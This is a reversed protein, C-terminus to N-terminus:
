GRLPRLDRPGKELPGPRLDCALVLPCRGSGALAASLKGHYCGSTRRWTGRVYMIMPLPWAPMWGRHM